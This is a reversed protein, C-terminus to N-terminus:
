PPEYEGLIVGIGRRKTSRYRNGAARDLGTELDRRKRCCRRSAPAPSTSSGELDEFLNDSLRTDSAVTTAAAQQATQAARSQFVQKCHKCRMPQAAWEAPARLVKRCRPCQIQVVQMM